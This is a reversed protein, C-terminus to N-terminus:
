CIIPREIGNAFEVNRLTGIRSNYLVIEAGPILCSLSHIGARFGESVLVLIGCIRRERILVASVSTFPSSCTPHILILSLAQLGKTDISSKWKSTGCALSLGSEHMRDPPSIGNRGKAGRNGM